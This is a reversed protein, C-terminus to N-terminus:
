IGEEPLGISGVKEVKIWGWSQVAFFRSIRSIEFGRLCHLSWLDM